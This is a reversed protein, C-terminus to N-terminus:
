RIQIGSNYGTLKYDLKLEFNGPKGGRWILFTNEAPQKDKATEGVLAGDEIRWFNPDGDWGGLTKGDFIPTFGSEELPPTTPGFGAPRPRPQQAQASVLASVAATLLILRYITSM